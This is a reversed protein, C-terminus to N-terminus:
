VGHGGNVTIAVVDRVSPGQADKKCLCRSVDTLRKREKQDEGRLQMRPHPRRPLCNLSSETAFHSKNSGLPSNPSIRYTCIVDTGEPGAAGGGLAESESASWKGLFHAVQM